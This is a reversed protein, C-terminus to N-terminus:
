KKKTGRGRGRGRGRGALAKVQCLFVVLQPIGEDHLKIPMICIFILPLQSWFVFHAVFYWFGDLFAEDM